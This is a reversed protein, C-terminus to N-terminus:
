STRRIWFGGPRVTQPDFSPILCKLAEPAARSVAYNPMVVEFAHNFALFAQLLYQEAWARRKDIVWDKPYEYPLFIDHVHVTVGVVLRPLIELFIHTVDGGTRVTHTTDVFLVDGAQLASFQGPDIDEARVAHATAGPVPGMLGSQYPFPDFITHELSKGQQANALGAAHIVHSSVGSGLEYVRRPKLDRLIAYLTEADVSEYSGNHLWFRGPGTPNLPPCFESLYPRLSGELLVLADEVRLDVGPLESPGDWRTTPIEEVIPIPSYFHRRTLHYGAPVLARGAFEDGLRRM